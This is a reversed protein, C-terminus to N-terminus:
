VKSVIECPVSIRQVENFMHIEIEAKRKHRDIKVIQSEHGKLPGETIIVQDGEIFGISFEIIRERNTFQELVKREEPHISIFEPDLRNGLLKIFGASLKVNSSIFVSFECMDLDSEVFVYGRFLIEDVITVVGQKRYRQKKKPIFAHFENSCQNILNVFKEEMGARVHLVFWHNM